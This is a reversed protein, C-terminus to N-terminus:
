SDPLIGRHLEEPREVQLGQRRTMLVLQCVPASVM